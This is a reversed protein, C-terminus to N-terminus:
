HWDELWSFLRRFARLGHDVIAEELAEGFRDDYEALMDHNTRGSGDGPAGSSDSRSRVTQLDAQEASARMARHRLGADIGHHHAAAVTIRSCVM